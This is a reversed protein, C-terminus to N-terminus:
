KYAFETPRKLRMAAEDAAETGAYEHVLKRYYRRAAEGKGAEALNEAAKLMSEAAREFRDPCLALSWRCAAAVRDPPRRDSTPGHDEGEALAVLAAHAASRLGADRHTLLHILVWAVERKELEALKKCETVVVNTAQMAGQVDRSKLSAVIMPVNPASRARDIQQIQSVLAQLYGMHPASSPVDRGINALAYQLLAPEPKDRMMRGLKQSIVVVPCSAQMMASKNLGRVLSAVAETGLRDFDRRAKLGEPGPLRGVDFEIFREVIEDHVKNQTEFPADLDVDLGDSIQGLTHPGPSEAPLGATAKALAQPNAPRDLVPSKIGPTEDPMALPLQNDGVPRTGPDRSAEADTVDLPITAALEVPGDDIQNEVEGFSMLLAMVTKQRSVPVTLSGLVVIALLHLVFSALWCPIHRRRDNNWQRRFVSLQSGASPVASGAPLLIAPPDLDGPAAAAPSAAGSPRTPQSTARARQKSAALEQISGSSRAQTASPSRTAPSRPRVVSTSSESPKRVVQAGSASNQM